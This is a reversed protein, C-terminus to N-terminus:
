HEMVSVVCFLMLSGPLLCLSSQPNTKIKRSIFFMPDNEWPIGLGSPCASSSPSCLIRDPVSKFSMCSPTQCSYLCSNQWRCATVPGPLFSQCFHTHHGSVCLRCFRAGIPLKTGLDCRMYSRPYIPVCFVRHSYHLGLFCSVVVVFDSPLALRIYASCIFTRILTCSSICGVDWSVRGSFEFGM